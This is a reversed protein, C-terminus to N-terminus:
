HDAFSITLTPISACLTQKCKNGRSSLLLHSFNSLTQKNSIVVHFTQPSIARLTQKKIKCKDWAILPFSTFLKIPTPESREIAGNCGWSWQWGWEVDVNCRIRFIYAKSKRTSRYESGSLLHLLMELVSGQFVTQGHSLLYNKWIKM